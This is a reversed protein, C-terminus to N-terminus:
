PEAFRCGQDQGKIPLELSGVSPGNALMHNIELIFDLEFAELLAVCVYFRDM